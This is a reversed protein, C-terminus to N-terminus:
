RKEANDNGQTAVDLASQADALRTWLISIRAGGERRNSIDIRGGHEEIIKKVIALGLGTGSAKTTVYPEFVRNLVQPAFGPGNDSVTLRVALREADDASAHMTKTQVYLHAAAAPQDQTAADRANALLNHMVQRLQTADGQIVPLGAELEVDIRIGGGPDRVMGAAPDWGYLTLVDAILANLDVDQMQAPPTRAYERFDDVMKKLSAVQNVITNTSRKLMAADAEGLRDALKM